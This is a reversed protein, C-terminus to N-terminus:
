HGADPSSVIFPLAGGASCACLEDGHFDWHVYVNGDPSAMADPAVGFPGARDIADLAAIDFATIGSTRVIGMRVLRGANKTLVIEIRTLLPSARLPHSAPLAGLSALFTGAFLPHIRAHM